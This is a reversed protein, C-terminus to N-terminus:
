REANGRFTDPWVNDDKGESFLWTKDFAIKESAANKAKDMGALYITNKGFKQNLEDVASNLKSRDETADFLSMTVGDHEQLDTFVVGVAKPKSYDRDKWLRLFHENFTITDQTPPLTSRAKWSKEFGTVSISIAGAWLDNARLRATAKQILRLLVEKCGQDTRLKPPLVHSHSLSKRDTDPLELDYGRLLYWWREGIISGFARALDKREARCMQEASFIGAGNLRAAMKRNIGAFETLDLSFLREPLDEHTLVVLGDPKQMDTAVKALFSNPAIGISAKMYEGVHERIAAKIRHALGVAVQPEAETALLRCRMEDISCVKEVPLVTEVAEIVRHHYHVYKTPTGSVLILDPCLRKAEDIRMVTKVGFAKAEYSAAIVFSTDALVPAVAIPKGRLEPHEQQEVSAFYSNLDLFLVRLPLRDREIQPLSVDVM